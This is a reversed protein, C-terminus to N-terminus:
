SGDIAQTYCEAAKAPQDLRHEYILGLQGSLAMKAEGHTTREVLRELERAAAAWDGRAAAVHILAIAATEYQPHKDRVTQYRKQAAELERLHLEEIQAIEHLVLAQQRADVLANARRELAACLQKWQRDRRLIRDLARMASAHLPDDAMAREYAAVAADREGLKREHVRGIHYHLAARDKPTTCHALQRTWIGIVERWRGALHHLRGM